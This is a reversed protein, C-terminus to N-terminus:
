HKCYLQLDLHSLQLKNAGNIYSLYSSSNQVAHASILFSQNGCLGHEMYFTWKLIPGVTAKYVTLLFLFIHM